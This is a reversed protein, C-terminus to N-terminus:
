RIPLLSSTAVRVGPSGLLATEIVYVGAPGLAISAFSAVGGVVPVAQEGVLTGGTPGSLIRVQVTGSATTVLNGRDDRISIRPAPALPVGVRGSDPFAEYVIQAPAGPLVRFSSSVTGRVGPATAVLTVTDAVRDISLSPFSALGGTVVAVTGGRLTDREAGAALAVTVVTQAGVDLSGDERLVGVEVTRPFPQGAVAVPPVSLFTLRDANRPTVPV